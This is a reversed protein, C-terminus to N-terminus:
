TAAQLLDGLALEVRRRLVDQEVLLAGVVALAELDGRHDAAVGVGAGPAAGLLLGLLPRGHVGQGLDRRLRDRRARSLTTAM